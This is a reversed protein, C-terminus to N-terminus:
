FQQSRSAIKKCNNTTATDGDVDSCIASLDINTVIPFETSGATGGYYVSASLEDSDADSVTFMITYNGLSQNIVEGGDPQFVGTVPVHNMWMSGTEIASCNSGDCVAGFYDTTRNDGSQIIYSCSIAATSSLSTSCFETHLCGSVSINTTNCVFLQASASDADSWNAYFTTNDGVKMINSTNSDVYMYGVVPPANTFYFVSIKPRESSNSWDSSYAETYNGALTNPAALMIGYNNFSGNVWGRLANLISINYWGTENTFTTQSLISSSYDGGPWGWIDTSNIDFWNTESENWDTTIRYARIGISQNTAHYYSKMGIVASTITKGQPVASVNFFLLARFENGNSAKGIKMSTQAGYITSSDERIYTDTGTVNDSQNSYVVFGTFAPGLLLFAGAFVFFVLAIVGFSLVKGGTGWLPRSM